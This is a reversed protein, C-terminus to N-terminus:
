GPDTISSIEWSEDAVSAIRERIRSLVRSRSMYVSARSMQLDTAVERPDEELVATRHFAQWNNPSFEPEVKEAAWQFLRLRYDLDWDTGATLDQAPLPSKAIENPEALFPQRKNQKLLRSIEHRTITYLWSRFTGKERNYDFNQIARFINQLVIQLIDRADSPQLGRNLAFNYILPTYIEVFEEWAAQDSSNRIRLILTARTAPAAM